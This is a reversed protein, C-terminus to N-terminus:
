RLRWLHCSVTHDPGVPVVPPPMTACPGGADVAARLCRHRFSCGDGGVPRHVEGQGRALCGAADFASALLELSYPHVAGGEFFRPAPGDEVIRGRYLVLVRTALARVARLDHSILLFTISRRAHIQGLLDLLEAQIPPDLGAVPEDSVVFRPRTALARAFAVRRREGGSLRSPFEGLREPPLCVRDALREVEEAVRGRPLDRHTRIAEALISRVRFAPDLSAYPNQFVMQAERCFDRRVKRGLRAVDYGAVRVRGADFPLLGMLCRGLTTKGSGSEGVLAALEGGHLCFGVDELVPAAAGGLVGLGRTRFVKRLGSVEVVAADTM